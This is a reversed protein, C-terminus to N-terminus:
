HLSRGRRVVRRIFEHMRCEHPNEFGAGRFAPGIQGDLDIRMQRLQVAVTAVLELGSAAIARQAARNMAVIRQRSRSLGIRKVGISQRAPKAGGKRAQTEFLTLRQQEHREFTEVIRLGRSNQM